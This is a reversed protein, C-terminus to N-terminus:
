FLGKFRKGKPRVLQRALVYKFYAIGFQAIPILVLLNLTRNLRRAEDTNKTQVNQAYYNENRLVEVSSQLQNLLTRLAVVDENGKNIKMISYMSVSFREDTAGHNYIHITWIGPKNLRESVSRELPLELSDLKMSDEELESRMYSDEMSSAVPKNDKRRRHSM